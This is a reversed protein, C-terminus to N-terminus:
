CAFCIMCVRVYVYVCCYISRLRVVGCRRNAVNVMGSLKHQGCYLPRERDNGFHPVKSCGPHKCCRSVVNVHGPLKHLGCFRPRTAGSAAYRPQTTCGSVECRGGGRTGTAGGRGGRGVGTGSGDSTAGGRGGSTAADDASPPRGDRRGTIDQGANGVASPDVGPLLSSLIDGTTLSTVDQESDHSEGSGTSAHGTSTNSRHRLHHQQQWPLEQHQHQSHLSLATLDQNRSPPSSDARSAPPPPPPPSMSGQLLVTHQQCYRCLPLISRSPLPLNPFAPLLSVVVEDYTDRFRACSDKTTTATTITITIATTTAYSLIKRELGGEAKKRLETM